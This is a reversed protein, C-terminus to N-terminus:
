LLILAGLGLFAFFGVVDTITTLVVSGALAPDINLKRMILPLGVGSAAAIIQNLIMAMGIVASLLPNRFWVLVILAVVVAWALGNITAVALEKLLLTRANRTGIQGLALGRIMLTLTQSGGIGGMSAVIPMLVALAVVQDITGEFLGVVRAALFATFLNIGLWVARRRASSIIPAFLDEEEDLGARSMFNHEAEDRITDVVDDITIRGLLVGQDDVVPASVLDLDQFKRAVQTEGTNVNLPDLETDMIEAIRKDPDLTLLKDLSVAGLYRGYRNVVFLKDTGDPLEARQRLYRLVVDVTVDPRITVTDINMLGGASDAPYSLISELRQRNQYDMSRLVQQTLTEPLDELLDALDDIDLGETAALLVEDDLREILNTRVEDNVHLLVEGHDEPDVLGWVIKRKTPPIGELLVAVEAANLEHLMPQVRRMRGTELARHLHALVDDSDRQQVNETM